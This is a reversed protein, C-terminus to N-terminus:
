SVFFLRRFQFCPKQNPKIILSWVLNSHFKLDTAAFDSMACGALAGKCARRWRPAAPGPGARAGRRWAACRVALPARPCRRPAATSGSRRRAGPTLGRGAQVCAVVGVKPEHVADCRPQAAVGGGHALHSGGAPKRRVCAVVGFRPAQSAAVEFASRVCCRSQNEFNRCPPHAQGRAVRPPPSARSSM